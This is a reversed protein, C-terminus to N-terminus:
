IAGNPNETRFCYRLFGQFCVNFTRKGRSFNEESFGWPILILQRGYRLSICNQNSFFHREGALERHDVSILVERLLRWLFTM